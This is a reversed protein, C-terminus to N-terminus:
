VILQHNKKVHFFFFFCCSFPILLVYCFTHANVFVNLWPLRVRHQNYILTDLSWLCLTNDVEFDRGSSSDCRCVSYVPHVGAPVPLPLKLRAPCLLSCCGQKEPQPVPLAWCRSQSPETVSSASAAEAGRHKWCLGLVQLAPAPWLCSGACHQIKTQSPLSLAKLTWKICKCFFLKKRCNRLHKRSFCVNHFKKHILCEWDTFVFYWNWFLVMLRGEKKPLRERKCHFKWNIDEERMCMSM